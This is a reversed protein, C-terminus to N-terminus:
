GSLEKLDGELCSWKLCAEFREHNYEKGFLIVDKITSSTIWPKQSVYAMSGHCNVSTDTTQYMQGLIASLLSSKGSGLSGIRATSAGAKFKLNIERLILEPGMEDNKGLLEKEEELRLKSSDIKKQKINLKEQQVSTNYKTNQWFFSGNRIEVTGVPAGLEIEGSQLRDQVTCNNLAKQTYNQLEESLLFLCIRKGSNSSEKIYNGVQAVQRVAGSFFTFLISAVIAEELSVSKSIVLKAYLMSVLFLSNGLVTLVNLLGWRAFKMKLWHLESARKTLFKAVYHEELAHM